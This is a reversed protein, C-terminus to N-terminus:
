NKESDGPKKDTCVLCIVGDSMEPLDIFGNFKVPLANYYAIEKQIDWEKKLMAYVLKDGYKESTLKKPSHDAYFLGERRM